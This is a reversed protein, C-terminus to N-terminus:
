KKKNQEIYEDDVERLVEQIVGDRIIKWRELFKETVVDYLENNYNDNAMEYPLKKANDIARELIRVTDDDGDKNVVHNQLFSKYEILTNYMVDAFIHLDLRIKGLRYRLLDFEREKEKYQADLNILDKETMQLQRNWEAVADADKEKKAKKREDIINNRELRKFNIVNELKVAEAQVKLYLKNM